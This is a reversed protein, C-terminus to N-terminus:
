IGVYDIGTKIAKEIKVIEEDIYKDDLFIIMIKLIIKNTYHSDLGKIVENIKELKYLNNKFDNVNCGLRVSQTYLLYFDTISQCFGVNECNKHKLVVLDSSSYFQFELNSLNKNKEFLNRIDNKYFLLDMERKINM